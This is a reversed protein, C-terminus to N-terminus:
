DLEARRNVYGRLTDFNNVKVGLLTSAAPYTLAQGDLANFVLRTFSPGVRGLQTWYYNGGGPKSPGRRADLKATVHNTDSRSLLGRRRATVAAARPTVGFALALADVRGLPDLGSHDHFVLAFDDPPMLVAGAFNDCWPETEPGVPEGAAGLILHGLEHIATFARARPDDQTNVVIAPVSPHTSAFGRMMTLPLSGDQMVLIGLSEIADIWHRLPQYGAQDQWSAQEELGIGLLRRVVKWYSGRDGSIAGVVEAWPPEEEILDYLEAAADQRIRIRRALVQMEPPWPPEPAGPLHRFQAEQPEESPPEPLFLAALPRHYVKAAKEAQRLTLLEEGDEARALKEKRVGIKSAADGLAYGVSERAWRLVDPTVHAPVVTAM